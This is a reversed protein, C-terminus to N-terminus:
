SKFGIKTLNSPRDRSDFGESKGQKLYLEFLYIQGDQTLVQFIFPLDLM